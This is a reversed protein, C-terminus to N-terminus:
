HSLRRQPLISDVNRKMVIWCPARISFSNIGWIVRVLMVDVIMFVFDWLHGCTKFHLKVEEVGCFTQWNLVICEHRCNQRVVGIGVNLLRQIEEIKIFSRYEGSDLQARTSENDIQLTIVSMSSQVASAKHLRQRVNWAWGVWSFWSMTLKRFPCVPWFILSVKFGWGKWMDLM